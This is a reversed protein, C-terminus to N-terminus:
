HTLTVPASRERERERERQTERDTERERERKERERQIERGTQGEKEYFIILIISIHFKCGAM